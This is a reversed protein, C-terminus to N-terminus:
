GYMWWISGYQGYGPDASPSAPSVESGCPIYSVSLSFVSQWCAANSGGTGVDSSLWQRRFVSMIRDPGM